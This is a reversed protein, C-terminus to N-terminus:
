PPTRVDLHISGLNQVHPFFNVGGGVDPPDLWSHYFFLAPMCIFHGNSTAKANCATCVASVCLEVIASLLQVVGHMPPQLFQM